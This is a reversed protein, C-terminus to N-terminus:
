QVMTGNSEPHNVKVAKREAINSINVIQINFMFCFM